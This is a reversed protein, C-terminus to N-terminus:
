KKLNISENNNVDVSKSISSIDESWWFFKFLLSSDIKHVDIINETLYKINEIDIEDKLTVVTTNQRLKKFHSIYKTFNDDPENLLFVLVVPTWDLKKNQTKIEEKQLFESLLSLNKGLFCSETSILQINNINELPILDSIKYNNESLSNVSIHVTEIAMPNQRLSSIFSSLGNSMSSLLESDIEAKTDILFYIPLRRSM